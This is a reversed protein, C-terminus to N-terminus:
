PGPPVLIVSTSESHPGSLNWLEAPLELESCWWIPCAGHVGPGESGLGQFCGRSELGLYKRFVWGQREEEVYPEGVERQHERGTRAGRGLSGLGGAELRGEWAGSWSEACHGMMAHPVDARLEMLSFLSQRPCAHPQLPHVPSPPLGSFSCGRGRRGTGLNCTAPSDPACSMLLAHYSSVSLLFFFPTGHFDTPTPTPSFLTSSIQPRLIGVDLCKGGDQSQAERWGFCFPFCNCLEKGAM